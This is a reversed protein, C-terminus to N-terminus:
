AKSKPEAKDQDAAFAIERQAEVAALRQSLASSISNYATSGLTLRLAPKLSDAASIM